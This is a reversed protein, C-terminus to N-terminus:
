RRTSTLTWGILRTSRYHLPNVHTDEFGAKELQKVIRAIGDADLAASTLDTMRLRYTEVEAYLGAWARQLTKADPKRSQEVLQMVSPLLFEIFGADTERATETRGREAIREAADMLSERVKLAGPSWHLGGPGSGGPKLARFLKVTREALHIFREEDLCYSLQALGEHAQRLIASDAHHLIMALRGGPRLIRAAELSGAASDGYEFGYQSTALDVSGPEFGTAELPTNGIITIAALDAALEPRAASVVAPDISAFDVGTISLRRGQERAWAAALLAVAGNGTALDVVVGDDNLPELAAHWFDAIDGDYNGAFQGEFTTITGRSWFRSWEEDLLRQRRTSTKKM